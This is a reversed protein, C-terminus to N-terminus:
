RRCVFGREFFPGGAARSGAIQVAIDQVVLRLSPGAPQQGQARRKGAGGRGHRQLPGPWPGQGPRAHGNCCRQRQTSVQATRSRPVVCVYLHSASIAAGRTMVPRPPISTSVALSVFLVLLHEQQMSSKKSLVEVNKTEPFPCLLETHGKHSLDTSHADAPSCGSAPMQDGCCAPVM